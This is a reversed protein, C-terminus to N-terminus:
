GAFLLFVMLRRLTDFRTPADSFRTLGGAVILAESCNTIFLTLILPIPWGLPLQLALHVPLASALALPWLRPPSLLLVSALVANPPWMVSTTAPPLRLQLGVVSALYYGACAGVAIAPVAVSQRPRRPPLASGTM